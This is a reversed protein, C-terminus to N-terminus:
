KTTARYSRLRVTHRANFGTVQTRSGGMVAGGDAMLLSGLQEVRQTQARQGPLLTGPRPPVAISRRGFALVRPQAPLSAGRPRVLM